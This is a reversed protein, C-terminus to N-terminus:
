RSFYAHFEYETLTMDTATDLSIQGFTIANASVESRLAHAFEAVGDFQEMLYAHNLDDLLQFYAVESLRHNHAGYSITAPFATMFLGERGLSHREIFFRLNGNDTSFENLEPFQAAISEQNLRQSSFVYGPMFSDSLAIIQFAQVRSQTVALTLLYKNSPYYRYELQPHTTSAKILRAAGFITELYDLNAGVRVQDLEKYEVAHTFHTIFNTYVSEIMMRAGNWQGLTVISLTLFVFFSKFISRPRKTTNAASVDPM